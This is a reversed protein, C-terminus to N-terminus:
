GLIVGFHDCSSMFIIGVIDKRPFHIPQFIAVSKTNYTNNIGFFGRRIQTCPHTPDVYKCAPTPPTSICEGKFRAAITDHMCRLKQVAGTTDAWQRVFDAPPNMEQMLRIELFYTAQRIKAADAAVSELHATTAGQNSLVWARQDQDWRAM